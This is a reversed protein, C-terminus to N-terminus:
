GCLGDQGYRQVRAPDYGGSRNVHVQDLKGELVQITVVGDDVTQRPVYAVAVFYGHQRYYDTVADALAQLQALTASTGEVRGIQGIAKRLSAEDIHTNGLFRITQVHVAATSESQPAGPAAPAIVGQNQGQTPAPVAPATQQLLQGANPRSTQAYVPAAAVVWAIALAMPKIPYIRPVARKRRGDGEPHMSSM